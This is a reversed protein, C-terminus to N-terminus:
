ARQRLWELAEVYEAKRPNLTETQYGHSLAIQQLEQKTLRGLDGDPLPLVVRARHGEEFRWPRARPRGRGPAKAPSSTKAREPRKKGDSWRAEGGYSLVLVLEGDEVRWARIPVGVELEEAAQQIMAMNVDEIRIM